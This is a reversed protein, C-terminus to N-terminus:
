ENDPAVDPATVESMLLTGQRLKELMATERESLVCNATADLVKGASDQWGNKRLLPVVAALLRFDDPNKLCADALTQLTADPPKADLDRWALALAACTQAHHRPNGLATEIPGVVSEIEEKSFPRAPNNKAELNKYRFYALKRYAAPRTTGLAAAKELLPLAKTKDGARAEYLGLSAAFEPEMGAPSGPELAKAYIEGALEPANCALFWEGLIRAREGRTADRFGPAPRPKDKPFPITFQPAGWANAKGTYDDMGLGRYFAYMGDYFDAYDKGYCKVFLSEDLPEKRVANLLKVYGSRIQEDPSFVCYLSFDSIQRKYTIYNEVVRMTNPEDYSIRFMGPYELVDRLSLSPASMFKSLIDNKSKDYDCAAGQFIDRERKYDYRHIVVGRRDTSYWVTKASLIENGNNSPVVLRESSDLSLIKNRSFTYALTSFKGGHFCLRFFADVLASVAYYNNSRGKYAGPVYVLIQAQEDNNKALTTITTNPASYAGPKLGQMEPRSITRKKILSNEKIRAGAREDITTIFKSVNYDKILIIKTPIERNIHFLPSRAGFVNIIQLAQRVIDGAMKDNDLASLIEFDDTGMYRWTYRNAFVELKEMEVVDQNRNASDQASASFPPVVAINLLFLAALVGPPLTKLPLAM